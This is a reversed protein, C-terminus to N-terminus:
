VLLEKVLRSALAGDYSGAHNKKLEGMLQGMAKPGSLGQTVIINGITVRLEPETLQRPLYVQLADKEALLTETSGAVAITEDINKLFKKITAIVEQDTTDRNGDNKGVMEAEGILTTLISAKTKDAAIRAQLQDSKIQELLTM